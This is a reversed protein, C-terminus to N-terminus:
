WTGPPGAEGGPPRATAAAPVAPSSGPVAPSSGPVAPSSGPVAPSSGPVAPSSGPVAPSSGPVAPSSGPVAPSSGPVAPEKRRRERLYSGIVTLGLAGAPMLTVLAPLQYRWSFEFFDSALLVAAASLFTLLCAAGTARQAASARRRFVGLSGILGALTALLLVPGPTYGGHLQYGRLFSALGPSGAPRIGAFRAGAAILKPRGSPTFRGFQLHGDTVMIYPPYLPYGPQFQWRSISVDGADTVRDVAYLKAADRAIAGAVRVPQQRLVRRTFDTAVPIHRRGPALVVTKVPSGAGHDLWDPGLAQQEPSPCLPQEDGPLQLTACDAAAAARGYMTGSAYPALAFHKITVYNRYSVLLIPLAFLVCLAVAANLRARWGPMVVLLYGVAPVIFIEGVQRVTASAGFAAGGALVMWLAPCRRWLLLVLGAVILVEFATDPMISQEVQLQYADLLVPAAALAALSRPVGRRLLVLYLAVAMALGALHQVAAVASLSGVGLFGRLLLQYGPPDNGPYAGLLYKVSDIYLLAPRYALQTAVRLALGLLLLVAFLWHRRLVAFLWHRQRVAFLWHRRLVAGGARRLGAAGGSFPSGM